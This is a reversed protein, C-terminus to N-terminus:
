ACYADHEGTIRWRLTATLERLKGITFTAGGDVVIRHGNITVRPERGNVQYFTERYQQIVQQHYNTAVPYGELPM